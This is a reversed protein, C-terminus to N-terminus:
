FLLAGLLVGVLFFGWDAGSRRSLYGRVRDVLRDADHAFRSSRYERTEDTM